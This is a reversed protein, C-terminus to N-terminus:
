KPEIGSGRDIVCTEVMDDVARTKVTISNGPASAQVANQLV